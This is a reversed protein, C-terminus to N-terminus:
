LPNAVTREVLKAFLDSRQDDPLGTGVGGALLTTRIRGKGVGLLDVTFPVRQGSVSADTTLRVGYAGDAGPGSLMVRTVGPPAFAGAAQGAGAKVLDTMFAGLCRTSAEGSFSAVDQEVQAPDALVAVASSVRTGGDPDVFTGSSSYAVPRQTSGGLCRALEQEVSSRGTARVQEPPPPVFGPLDAPTLNIKAAAAASDAPAPAPPSSAPGSSAGAGASTGADDGTCGASLVLLGVLLAKRLRPATM